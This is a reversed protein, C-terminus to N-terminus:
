LVIWIPGIKLKKEAKNLTDSNKEIEEVFSDMLEDPNDTEHLIKDLKENGVRKKYEQYSTEPFMGPDLQTLQVFSLFLDDKTVKRENLYPEYGNRKFEMELSKMQIFSKADVKSSPNTTHEYLRKWVKYKEDLSKRIM